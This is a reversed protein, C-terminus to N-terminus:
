QENVQELRDKMVLMEHRTRDPDARLQEAQLLLDFFVTDPLADGDTDVMDNLAVGGNAFNLWAALLDGDFIDDDPKGPGLLITQADTFTELEQLESFVESAHNVIDLYCQLQATTFDANKTQRYESRWYGSGRVMDADGLVIVSVNESAAGGDDDTATFTVEYLCAEGFTNSAEDSVNRQQVTPSPLPDDNPPNVQGLRSTTNGDDFDWELLLDDSGPDSTQSSLSVDDGATVVVTEEGNLETTEGADISVGPAVNNVTLDFGATGDGSSRFEFTATVAVTGSEDIETVQDPDLHVVPPDFEEGVYFAVQDTNGNEDTATVFVLVPDVEEPEATVEISYGPDDSDDGYQYSGTVVGITPDDEHDPEIVELEVAEVQIGQHDEPAGWDIAATYEPESSSDGTWEWTGDGNDTVTGSSATLEVDDDDPDFYTGTMTEPTVTDDANVFPKENGEDPVVIIESTMGFVAHHFLHCHFVWKGLSGEPTVGDMLARPTSGSTGGQPGPDGIHVRYTLMCTGGMRNPMDIEDVFENYDYVYTEVTGDTDCEMQKPQMSFGHPHFPHHSATAENTVQLELVDGVRAWRASDQPPVMAYDGPPAHDGVIEDVALPGNNLRINDSAVGPKGFDAPDLFGSSTAVLEEVEEGPFQARLPDGIALEYAPSVAAGTVNLHAVPVTPTQTFGQGTREFDQTWITAVGSAGDPIAAVVDARNGPGLLIEGEGYKWDFGQAVGGEVRAHDLLGGEGGIRTLPVQTGDDLTMRLRMYRIAAANIFQFRTGSGPQVDLASAGSALAGPAAPSGDRHGVNVGNTLVTQGENVRGSTGGIQINPVDGAVLPSEIKDGHGDIPDECLDPASPGPQPGWPDAGSVHPLAPDYTADGNEGDARCVTIDSLVMTHTNTAAPLTGNDVLAQNNPDEVILPGYMGKFVQNTSAEHHPHYWFVGARPVEFKYLFSDGPPIQNQTAPTGDSANNLEIGHWHIGAPEPSNNVFNVIVTDGINARIEPGPITGNFTWVTAEVDDEVDVGRKVGSGINVTVEQAVLTTEIVQPDPNIDVVSSVEYPSGSSTAQATPVASVLTAAVLPVVVAITALERGRHRFIRAANLPKRM